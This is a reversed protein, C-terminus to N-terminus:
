IAAISSEERQIVDFMAFATTILLGNEDISESWKNTNEIAFWDIRYHLYLTQETKDYSFCGRPIATNKENLWQLVDYEPIGALDVNSKTMLIITDSKDDYSIVFTWVSDSDQGLSFVFDIIRPNQLDVQEEFIIGQNTLTQKIYENVRKIKSM